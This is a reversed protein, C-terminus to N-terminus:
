NKGVSNWHEAIKGDSVRVVDFVNYKYMNGKADKDGLEWVLVVYDAKTFMRDPQTPLASKVPKKPMKGYYAVFEAQGGNINPDHEVYNAAMYKPALEVHGNVIVERYWELVLKQNKAEQAGDQARLAGCGAALIVACGLMKFGGWTMFGGRTM